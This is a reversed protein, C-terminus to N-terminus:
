IQVLAAPLDKMRGTYSLAYQQRDPRGTILEIIQILLDLKQENMKAAGKMLERQKDNMGIILDVYEQDDAPTFFLRTVEDNNLNLATRISMIEHHHFETHNDLRSALTATGMGAYKAFQEISGYQNLIRSRLENTDFTIKEM